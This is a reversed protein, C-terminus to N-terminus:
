SVTANQVGTACTPGVYKKGKIVVRQLGQRVEIFLKIKRGDRRNGMGFLWRCVVLFFIVEENRFLFSLKEVKRRRSDKFVKMFEGDGKRQVEEDEFASGLRYLQQCCRVIEIREM